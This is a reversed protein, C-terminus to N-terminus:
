EQGQLRPLAQAVYDSIKEILEQMTDLFTRIDDKSAHDVYFGCSAATPVRFRTALAAAIDYTDSLTVHPVLTRLAATQM